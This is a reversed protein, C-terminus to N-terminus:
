TRRAALAMLFRAIVCHVVALVSSLREPHAAFVSRLSRGKGSAVLQQLLAAGQQLLGTWPNESPSAGADRTMDRGDAAANGGSSRSHSDLEPADGPQSGSSEEWDAADPEASTCLPTESLSGTVADVGQMFRNLRTGGLFVEKEGVDLAGAFLSQKFSLERLM